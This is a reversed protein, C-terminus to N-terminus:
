RSKVLGGGNRGGEWHSTGESRCSKLKFREEHRGRTWPAKPSRPAVSLWRVSSTALLCRRASAGEGGGRWRTVRTLEVMSSRARCPPGAESTSEVIVAGWRMPTGPASLRAVASTGLAIVARQAHVGRASRSPGDPRKPWQPWNM